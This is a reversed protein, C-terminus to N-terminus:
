NRAFVQVKFVNLMVTTSFSSILATPTPQFIFVLKKTCAIRVKLCLKSLKEKLWFAWLLLLIVGLM